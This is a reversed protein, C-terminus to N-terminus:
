LCSFRLHVFFMRKGGSTDMFMNLADEDEANVEVEEEYDEDYDTLNDEGDSSEGEALLSQFEKKKRSLDFRCHTLIL